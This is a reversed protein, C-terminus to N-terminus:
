NPPKRQWRAKGCHPSRSGLRQRSFTEWCTPEEPCGVIEPGRPAAHGPITKVPRARCGAEPAALCSPGQQSFWAAERGGKRRLVAPQVCGRHRSGPAPAAGAASRAWLGAGEGSGAGGGGRGVAISTPAGGAPSGARLLTVAAGLSGPLRGVRRALGWCWRAWPASPSRLPCGTCLGRPLFPCPAQMGPHGWLPSHATSGNQSPQKKCVSGGCSTSLWLRSEWVQVAAGPASSLQEASRGLAGGRAAGSPLHRCVSHCGGAMSLAREGPVEQWRCSGGCFIFPYVSCSSVRRIGVAWALRARPNLPPGKSAAPLALHKGAAMSIPETPGRGSLGALRGQSSVAGAPGTHECSELAPVRWAVGCGQESSWWPGMALRYRGLLPRWAVPRGLLPQWM